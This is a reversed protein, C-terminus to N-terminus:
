VVGRERLLADLGDADRVLVAPRESLLGVTLAEYGGRQRFVVHGNRDRQPQIERLRPGVVLFPARLDINGVVDLELRLPADSEVLHAPELLGANSEARHEGVRAVAHTGIKAAAEAFLLQEPCHSDDRLLLEIRRIRTYPHRSVSRHSGASLARNWCM